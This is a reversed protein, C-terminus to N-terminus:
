DLFLDKYGNVIPLLGRAQACSGCRCRCGHWPLAFDVSRYPKRLSMSEVEGLGAIFASLGGRM